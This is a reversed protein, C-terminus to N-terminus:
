EELAGISKLKGVIGEVDKQLVNGMSLCFM